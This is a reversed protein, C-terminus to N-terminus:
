IALGHVSSMGILWLEETDKKKKIVKKLNEKGKKEKRKKRAKKREKKREKKQQLTKM